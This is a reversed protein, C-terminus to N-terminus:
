QHLYNNVGAPPKCYNIDDDIILFADVAVPKILAISDPELCRRM